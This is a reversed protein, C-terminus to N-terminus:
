NIGIKRLYEISAKVESATSSRHVEVAKIMSSNLYKALYAFDIEGTGPARHDSFGVVDHLHVGIMRSAYIKFYEEHSRLFGLKVWIEAHGTDHWYGVSNGFKELFIGIEEFSPIEHYFFRNELGIKLQNGSTKKKEAYNVIEEVSKLSNELYVKKREEREKKVQELYGRSIKKRIFQSFLEGENLEIEVEGAHIVVAQASLDAAYDITRKTLEVAKKREEPDLSSFQYATLLDRGQPVFDLKPCFNHLSVIEIKKTAIDKKIEEIIEHTTEINLEFASFGLELGDRIIEEGPMDVSSDILFATSLALKNM